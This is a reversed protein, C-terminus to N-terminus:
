MATSKTPSRGTLVEDAHLVEFAFVGQWGAAAWSHLQRALKPGHYPDRMILELNTLMATYLSSYEKATFKPFSKGSGNKAFGDHHLGTGLVRATFSKQFVEPRRRAVRYSGTYFFSISAGNRLFIADKLLETAAEEVWAARQQPPVHSPPILDYMSPVISAVTKKLDSRWMSLDEYLLKAMDHKRDPWFVQQGGELWEVLSAMLIETISGTLDKALKPFPNEIAHQACCESKTVELFNKWRPGYLGLQTARPGDGSEKVKASTTKVNTDKSKSSKTEAHRLLDLVQPDPLRPADM